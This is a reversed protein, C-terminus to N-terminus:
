PMGGGLLPNILLQRLIAATGGVLTLSTDGISLSNRNRKKANDSLIQIREKETLTPKKQRYDEMSKDFEPQAEKQYDVIKLYNGEKMDQQQKAQEVESESPLENPKPKPAKFVKSSRGRSSGREIKKGKYETM